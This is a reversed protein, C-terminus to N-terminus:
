SGNSLPGFLFQLIIGETFSAFPYM